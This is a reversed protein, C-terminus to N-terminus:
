VVLLKVLNVKPSTQLANALKKVTESPGKVIFLEFCVHNELHNHIQTKVIHQFAHRIRSITETHEDPHVVLVVGNIEGSIKRSQKQDNSFLRICQRITESRGSFGLEKQLLDLDKLSQEDLSMSIIESM